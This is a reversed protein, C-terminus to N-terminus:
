PTLYKNYTMSTKLLYTLTLGKFSFFALATTLQKNLNVSTSLNCIHMHSISSIMFKVFQRVQDNQLLSCECM